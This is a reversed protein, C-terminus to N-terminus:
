CIICQLLSELSFPIKILILEIFHHRLYAKVGTKLQSDDLWSMDGEVIGFSDVESFELFDHSNIRM